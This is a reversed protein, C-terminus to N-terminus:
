YQNDSNGTVGMLRLLDPTVSYSVIAISGYSATTEKDYIFAAAAKLKLEAV